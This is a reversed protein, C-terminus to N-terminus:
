DTLYKVYKEKVRNKLIDGLGFNKMEKLMSRYAIANKTYFTLEASSYNCNIDESVSKCANVLESENIGCEKMDVNQVLVTFYKKSDIVNANENLAESYKKGIRNEYLMGAQKRSLTKAYSDLMDINFINKM